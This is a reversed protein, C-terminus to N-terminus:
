AEAVARWRNFAMGLAMPVKKQLAGSMLQPQHAM